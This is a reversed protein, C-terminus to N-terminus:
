AERRTFLPEKTFLVTCGSFSGYDGQALQGTCPPIVVPSTSRLTAQTILRMRKDHELLAPTAEGGESVSAPPM